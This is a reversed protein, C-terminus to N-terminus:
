RAPRALEEIAAVIECHATMALQQEAGRRILWGNIAQIETRQGRQVDARMSSTNGATARAVSEVGARSDAPWTPDLRALLTDAEDILAHMQRRLASREVLAGNPVDFVATLPNIAANAVLKQWQRMRIDDVQQLGPWVQTLAALEDAPLGPGIWTHNEAVVERAGDARRMVANTTVGEILGQGAGLLGDLSGLGNQLRLVCADDALPLGTFAAETFPTKCTVVLRKIPESLAHRAVRRIPVEHVRGDAFHLTETATADINSVHRVRIGARQLYDIVLVGVNGAGSLHWAPLSEATM